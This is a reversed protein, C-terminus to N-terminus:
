PQNSGYVIRVNDGQDIITALGQVGDADFSVQIAPSGAMDTEREEIITWGEGEMATRLGDVVAQFDAGPANAIHSGLGDGPEAAAVLQVVPEFIERLLDDSLEAGSAPAPESAADPESAAVSPTEAGDASPSADDTDDGGCGALIMSAAMAAVVMRNM